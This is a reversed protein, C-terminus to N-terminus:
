VAFLLSLETNNHVSEIYELTYKMLVYIPTIICCDVRRLGGM